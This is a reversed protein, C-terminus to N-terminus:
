GDGEVAAGFDAARQLTEEVGTVDGDGVGPNDPAGSETTVEESYGGSLSDGMCVM